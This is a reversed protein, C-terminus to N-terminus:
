SRAVFATRKILPPLDGCEGMLPFPSIAHASTMSETLSCAFDKAPGLRVSSSQMDAADHMRISFAVAHADNQITALLFSHRVAAEVSTRTYHFLLLAIGVDYGNLIAIHMLRDNGSGFM